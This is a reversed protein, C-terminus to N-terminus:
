QEDKKAYVTCIQNGYADVRCRIEEKVEVNGSGCGSLLALAIACLVLRM